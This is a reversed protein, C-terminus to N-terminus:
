KIMISAKSFAEKIDAPFDKNVTNNMFDYNWIDNHNKSRTIDENEVSFLWPNNEIASFISDDSIDIYINPAIRNM